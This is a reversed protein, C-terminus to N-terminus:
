QLVEFQDPGARKATTFVVRRGEPRPTVKKVVNNLCDTCCGIRKAGSVKPELAHEPRYKGCIYCYNVLYNKLPGEYEQFSKGSLPSGCTKHATCIVDGEEDKLGLDAGEHFRTCMRCVFVVGKTQAEVIRAPDLMERRKSLDWRWSGVLLDMQDM